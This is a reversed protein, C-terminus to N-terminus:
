QPGREKKGQKKGPTQPPKNGAGDEVQGGGRPGNGLFFVIGNPGPFGAAAFQAQQGVGEVLHQPLDLRLVVRQLKGLALQADLDRGLRPEGGNEFCSGIEDAARVRRADGDVEVPGAALGEAHRLALVHGRFLKEIEMGFPGGLDDELFRHRGRDRFARPRSIGGDDVADALLDVDRLHEDRVLIGVPLQAVKELMMRSM